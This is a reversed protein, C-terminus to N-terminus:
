ARTKMKLTSLKSTILSISM